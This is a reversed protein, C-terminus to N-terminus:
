PGMLKEVAELELPAESTLNEIGSQRVVITDECRVYLKEEPVWMQPNVAFVTGAKLSSAFYNGVDHVAMGVPHSLHGKFDLMKRAAAEYIPKSWRTTDVIRRMDAAAESLVQEAMIGARIRSLAAKHYKVVFGYLERMLPPYPAGVPWIRGIDSTYNGVDPAYDMLVVDGRNMTRDNRWYHGLWISEASAIIARYGIGRAGGWGYVKDAIAGLQYEKMGPRTARMAEVVAQASLQGARRMVAIEAESKVLRLEDLIPSLDRVQADPCIELVRRRLHAEPSPRGNMPDANVSKQAALLTDRCTRGGEAPSHLLHVLKQGKLDQPLSSVPRVDDVGALRRAANVDECCLVPGESREHREDRPLLYLTTHRPAGDILLYASPVEVGCLYYFENTQRFADFGAM